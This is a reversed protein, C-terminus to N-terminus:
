EVDKKKKFKSWFVINGETLGVQNRKEHINTDMPYYFLLKADQYDHEEPKRM